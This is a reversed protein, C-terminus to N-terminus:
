AADRRVAGIAVLVDGADSEGIEIRQYTRYAVGLWLAAELQTLGLAHRWRRVEGAGVTRCKALDPTDARPLGRVRTSM